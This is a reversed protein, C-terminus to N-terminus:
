QLALLVTHRKMKMATHRGQRASVLQVKLLRSKPSTYDVNEHVTFTLARSGTGSEEHLGEAM